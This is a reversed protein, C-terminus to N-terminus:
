EAPEPLDSPTLFRVLSASGPQQARWSGRISFEALGAAPFGAALRSTHPTRRAAQNGGLLLLALEQVAPNHGVLLASRVTEPMGALLASLGPAGATYLADMPEVLPTEDWPELCELTELTRRASSVLVLDPQLGLRRMARGMAGAAARGVATLPRAHDPLGPPAAAANAHRLLLLQHM